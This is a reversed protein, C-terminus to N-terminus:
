MQPLRGSFLVFYRSGDQRWFNTYHAAFIIGNRCRTNLFRGAKGCLKWFIRLASPDLKNRSSIKFGDVERKANGAYRNEFMSNLMRRVGEERIRIM